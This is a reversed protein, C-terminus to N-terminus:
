MGSEIEKKYVKLMIKAFISHVTMFNFTSPLSLRRILTDTIIEDDLSLQSRGNGLDKFVFSLNMAIPPHRLGFTVKKEPDIAVVDFPGHKKGVKLEIMNNELENRNKFLFGIPTILLRAMLFPKREFLKSSAFKFPRNMFYDYVTKADANIEVSHKIEVNVAPKEDLQLSM